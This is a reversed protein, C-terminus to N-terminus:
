VQTGHTNSQEIWNWVKEAIGRTFEMKDGPSKEEWLRAWGTLATWVQLLERHSLIVRVYNENGITKVEAEASAAAQRSDAQLKISEM